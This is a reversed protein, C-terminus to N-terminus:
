LAESLRSWGAITLKPPDYLTHWRIGGTTHGREDVHQWRRVLCHNWPELISTWVTAREMDLMFRFWDLERITCLRKYMLQYKHKLYKHRVYDSNERTFCYYFAVPYVPTGGGYEIQHMVDDYLHRYVQSCLEDPLLDLYTKPQFM